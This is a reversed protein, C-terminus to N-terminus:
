LQAVRVESRITPGARNGLSVAGKSTVRKSVYRRAPRNAQKNRRCGRRAGRYKAAM